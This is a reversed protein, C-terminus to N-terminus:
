RSAMGNTFHGRAKYNENWGTTAFLSFYENKDPLQERLTIKLKIGGTIALLKDSFEMPLYKKGCLV